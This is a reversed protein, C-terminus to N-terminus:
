VLAHSALSPPKIGPDPLDGPTPFPLVSWYAQRSLEMLLPAPPSCDMPNFLASCSQAVSCGRECIAVLLYYKPYSLIFTILIM